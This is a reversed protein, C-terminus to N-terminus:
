RLTIRPCSFKVVVSQPMRLYGYPFLFKIFIVDANENNAAKKSVFWNMIVFPKGNRNYHASHKPIQSALLSKRPCEKTHSKSPISSFTRFIYRLKCM